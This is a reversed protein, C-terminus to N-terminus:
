GVQPKLVGVRVKNRKVSRRFELTQPPLPSCSMFYSTVIFMHFGLTMSVILGALLVVSTVHYLWFAGLLTMCVGGFLLHQRDQQSPGPIKKKQRSVYEMYYKRDRKLYMCFAIHLSILLYLVGEGFFVLAIALLAPFIFSLLMELKYFQYALYYCNKDTAVQKYESFQQFKALIYEDVKAFLIM